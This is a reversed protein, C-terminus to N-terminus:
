VRRQWQVPRLNVASIGMCRRWYRRTYHRPFVAIALPGEAEGEILRFIRVTLRHEDNPM